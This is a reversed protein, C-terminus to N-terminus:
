PGAVGTIILKTISKRGQAKVVIHYVGPRVRQGDDRVGSWAFVYMGPVQAASRYHRVRRGTLDFVEIEVDTGESLNIQLATVGFRRVASEVGPAVHRHTGDATLAPSIGSAPTLPVLNDETGPAVGPLQRTGFARPTGFNTGPEGLQQPGGEECTPGTPVSQASVVGATGSVLNGGGPPPNCYRHFFQASYIWPKCWSAGSSCGYPSTLIARFLYYGDPAVFGNSLKGDWYLTIQGAPSLVGTQLTKATGVGVQHVIADVYSAETAFFSATASPDGVSPPGTFSASVGLYHEVAGTSDGWREATIVRGECYWVTQSGVTKLGCPTSIAGPDAFTNLNAAGTGYSGYQDLLVLNPSYSYKFIKDGARDTIYLHGFHDVTCDVPDWNPQSIVVPSWTPGTPWRYLAVVRKNGRDVVYFVTTFVTGSGSATKGVCLGSPRNFQGTGSGVTGYSWVPSSPTPGNFDWYTIRALSDDLVYLFDTTLPATRGDWAADIPRGFGSYALNRPSTLTGNSTSFTTILVRRKLWDAVYTNKRASIDIGYPAGLVGGPGGSGNKFAHIWDDKKGILVRGWTPDTALQYVIGGQIFSV